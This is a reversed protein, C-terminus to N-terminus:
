GDTAICGPPMQPLGDKKIRKIVTLADVLSSHGHEAGEASTFLNAPNREDTLAKFADTHTQCWHLAIKNKYEDNQRSLEKLVNTLFDFGQVHIDHDDFYLGLDIPVQIRNCDLPWKLRCRSAYHVTDAHQDSRVIQISPQEPAARPPRSGHLTSFM